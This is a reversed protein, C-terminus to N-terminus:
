TVKLVKNQQNMHKVKAFRERVAQIYSNGELNDRSLHKVGAIIRDLVKQKEHDSYAAPEGTLIVRGEYRCRGMAKLMAEGLENQPKMTENPLFILSSGKGLKDRVYELALLVEKDNISSKKEAYEIVPMEIHFALWAMREDKLPDDKESAPIKQIPHKKEVIRREQYSKHKSLFPCAPPCHVEKERIQGCCLSCIWDGLAPCHRKSKRKHCRSCKKMNNVLSIFHPSPKKKRLLPM